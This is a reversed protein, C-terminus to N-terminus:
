WLNFVLQLPFTMMQFTGAGPITINGHLHDMNGHTEVVASSSCFLERSRRPPTGSFLPELHSWLTNSPSPHVSQSTDLTLILKDMHAPSGAPTEGPPEAANWIDQWGAAPVRWGWPLRPEQWVRPDGCLEMLALLPCLHLGFGARNKSEPLAVWGEHHACSRRRVAVVWSTSKSSNLKPGETGVTVGM